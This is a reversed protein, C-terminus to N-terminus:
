FLRKYNLGISSRHAHRNRTQAIELQLTQTRDIYKSQILRLTDYRADPDTQGIVHDFALLTKMNYVERVLVGLQVDGYAYAKHRSYGIGGGALVFADIDGAFRRTLGLAGIMYAARRSQLQEDMHQEVGLRFKGSIGGTLPDVPTLAQIGYITLRDLSLTGKRSARLSTEFLLLENESFYRRNDDTITHSIPLFTLRMEPKGNVSSLGVSVQKEPPAYLPNRDDGTEISADPFQAQRVEALVERNRTWRSRDLRKNRYAYDNEAEALMLRLFGANDNNGAWSDSSLGRSVQERTALLATVPMQESLARILWRDPTLVNTHSILGAESTRKIIDRPTIWYGDHEFDESTTGLVFHLLTACNYDQFFYTFESQKLELLHLLLVDKELEGLRLQYEWVSRQEDDVYQTLKERYPSLTFYGPKGTVLSEYFLKPLNITDTETYFSIAHSLENGARDHGVLKLFSHGMMSAPRAIDESAFVLAIYEVGAKARFESVDPCEDLPLAPADLRSRLFRYRAPFRCVNTRPGAYLFEITQTLEAEPSFNPLSLLFGSDRLYARTGTAHLLSQWRRSEHLRQARAATDLVQVLDASSSPSASATLPLSLCYFFAALIGSKAIFSAFRM